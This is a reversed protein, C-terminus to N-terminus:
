LIDGLYPLRELYGNEDLCISYPYMRDVRIWIHLSRDSYRFTQTGEIVIREQNYAIWNDDAPIDTYNGYLYYRSGSQKPLVRLVEVGKATMPNVLFPEITWVGPYSLFYHQYISVGLILSCLIVGLSPYSSRKQEVNTQRRLNRYLM